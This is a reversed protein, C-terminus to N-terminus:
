GHQHSRHCHSSTAVSREMEISPMETSIAIVAPGTGFKNKEHSNSIRLLIVSHPLIHTNYEQYIRLLIVSHPLIHTNCEQYHLSAVLVLAYPTGRDVMDGYRYMWFLLCPCGIVTFLSTVDTPKEAPTYGRSWQQSSSSLLTAANRHVVIQTTGFLQSNSTGSITLNPSRSYNHIDNCVTPTSNIASSSQTVPIAPIKFCSNCNNTPTYISHACQDPAAPWGGRDVVWWPLPINRTPAAFAMTHHPLYWAGMTGQLAISRGM